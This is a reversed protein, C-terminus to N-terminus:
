AKNLCLLSLQDIEAQMYKEPSRTVAAPGAIGTQPVISNEM